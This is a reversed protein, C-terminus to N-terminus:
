KPLILSFLFQLIYPPLIVAFLSLTAFNSRNNYNVKVYRAGAWMIYLVYLPFFNIMAMDVPMCNKLVEILGLLSISFLILLSNNSEISHGSTISPMYFEFAAVGLYYTVFFMLFTSLVSHLGTILSLTGDFYCGLLSSLAVVILWPLLAHTVMARADPADYSIDEWGHAPSMILQLSEKIYRLFM